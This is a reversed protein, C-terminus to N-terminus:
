DNILSALKLAISPDGHDEISWAASLVLRVFFWDKLRDFQLHTLEALRQARMLFASRTAEKVETPSFIDFAAVEFEIEGWVGKPDICIWGEGHKLINDIHLDGHLLKLAGMSSLLADKKAKAISFLKKDNPKPKANDLAELWESVHPYHSKEIEGYKHLNFTLNAYSQMVNELEQPYIEKLSIGPQAEMMLLACLGRDYEFLQVMKGSTNAELLSAECDMLEPDCGIKIVVPKDFLHVARAVYHYSMNTVPSLDSLQWKAKLKDIIKPLETLWKEGKTGFTACITKEFVTMKDSPLTHM